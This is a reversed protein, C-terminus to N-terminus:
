CFKACEDISHLLPIFVYENKYSLCLLKAKIETYEFMQEEGKKGDSLFIDTKHSSYPKTFFDLKNRIPVGSFFHSNEMRMAYRMEVIEGTKTLFWKDGIKRISFYVNPTIRIFQFLSKDSQKFEYKLEPVWAAIDLRRIDFNIEERGKDLCMEAIRRSVQQMPTNSPQVRLKIDHLFNEFPYTSTEVLSGFEDVDDSIHSINHINSVIEDNGYIRVFNVCFESFLKRAVNKYSAKVVYTRCSSMRVALCLYLFHTYEQEGLFDKLAVIGLYLLMTRFETAKWFRLFQLSRIKRKIDSPMEKNWFLIETSILDQTRKVWKNKYITTGEKWIKFMRKMTGQELLHLPDSVPFHKVMDILPKGDINRLDELVSKEKHHM